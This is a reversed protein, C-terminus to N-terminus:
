TGVEEKKIKLRIDNECNYLFFESSLYKEFTGIIFLKLNLVEPLHVYRICEKTLHM